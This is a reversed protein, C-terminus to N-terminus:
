RPAGPIQLIAITGKDRQFDLTGGVREAFTRALFLGLGLGRGPEKTTYFPEGARRLTDASMGPGQDEVEIRVMGGSPAFRITVPADDNSADFANRVLSTIAQVVEAGPAQPIGASPRIDVTLRTGPRDSFRATVREVIVEPSLPESTDLTGAVARGSMGDLIAQCRDVESRILEADALIALSAEDPAIRAANHALERSAVAITGLPTSLEHAAGAALTTVSALRESRAAREAAEDLQRQREALMFRARGVYHAVLEGISAGAFAMTFLHTPFDNLRHHERLGAQLHDVVLEGFAALAVVAVFTAWLPSVTRYATWVYVAYMVIFPNFPGGTLDLLGTLLLADAALAIGHLGPRMGPRRDGVVIALTRCVVAALLLPAIGRLPFDPAPVVVALLALIWLALVTALGLPREWPLVLREDSRARGM